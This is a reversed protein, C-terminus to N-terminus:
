KREIQTHMKIKRIYTENTDAEKNKRTCTYLIYTKSGAVAVKYTKNKIIHIRKIQIHENNQRTYWTYSVYTKNTNAEEISSIHTKNTYM